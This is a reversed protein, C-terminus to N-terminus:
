PLSRLFFAMLTWVEQRVDVSLQPPLDELQWARQLADEADARSALQQEIQLSCPMPVPQSPLRTFGRLDAPVEVVTAETLPAYRWTMQAFCGDPLARSLRLHQQLRASSWFCRRCALCTDSFVFRREDSIIQHATWLHAQLKQKADFQTICWGCSFTADDPILSPEASADFEVGGYVVM